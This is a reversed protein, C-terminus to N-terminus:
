FRPIDQDDNDNSYEEYDMNISDFDPDHLDMNDSPDRAEFDRDRLTDLYTLVRTPFTVLLEQTSIQLLDVVEDPDRNLLEMYLENRPTLEEAPTRDYYGEDQPIRPM